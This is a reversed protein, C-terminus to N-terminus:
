KGNQINNIKYIMIATSIIDKVYIVNPSEASNLREILDKAIDKDFGAPYREDGRMILWRGDDALDLHFKNEM